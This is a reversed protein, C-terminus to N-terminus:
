APEGEILRDAAGRAEDTVTRGSLMRAVEERRADLGLREVGTVMREGDGQKDVRLHDGGRAAVQPSHTVVLVQFGEALKELREGVADATAGGINSDVEDFVLTPVAGVEALAVKLALMFRSLEGGSAVKALPGATAGPNTTALFEVRDLGDAGWNEEALREIATEFVAKELKLPPLEGAVAEDLKKAAKARAASLAEAKALFDQRAAEAAATLDGIAASHDEILTLKAAIEGALELLADVEVGHKRAVDRLAFLREEVEDLRGGEADVDNAAARLAHLAEETELAARQLATLAPDLRGAAKDAVGEIQRLAAGIRTDAGTEGELEDRAADMAEILQEAHMLLARTAALRAEEGAEPGLKALEDAAHRLFEEDRKADAAAQEAKELAAVADRWATHAASTGEAKNALGGFADLLGRHMARELLGRAEFQGQIEVLEEGLRRLLGVSVPQDNIFARSRGDNRLTRRLVLEEDADLGHEAALATAPHGSPPDFSAAVTAEDASPRILAADGRAGLALGLADLLISKGAGTEGTLVSLGDTFTLDLRDILVVNRVSLATLM